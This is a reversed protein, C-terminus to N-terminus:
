ASLENRSERSATDNESKMTDHASQPASQGLEALMLIAAPYRPNRSLADRCAAAAEACEGRRRHIDATLVLVDPYEAGCRRAHQIHQLAEDIRGAAAHVRAALIRADIYDPNTDLARTVWCHADARRLTQWAASAAHYHLDAYNPHQSLAREIQEWLASLARTSEQAADVLAPILEPEAALRDAMRPATRSRTIRANRKPTDPWDRRSRFHILQFGAAPSPTAAVDRGPKNPMPM